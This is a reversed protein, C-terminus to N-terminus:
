TFWRCIKFIINVIIPYNDDFGNKAMNNILKRFDDEHNAMSKDIIPKQPFENINCIM